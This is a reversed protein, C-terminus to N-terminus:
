AELMAPDEIEWGKRAAKFMERQAEIYEDRRLPYVSCFDRRLKGYIHPNAAHFVEFREQIGPRPLSVPRRRLRALKDADQGAQDLTLQM